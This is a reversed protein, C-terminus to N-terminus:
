ADHSGRVEAALIELARPQVWFRAPSVGVVEGDLAVPQPPTPAAQWREIKGYRVGSHNIHSGTYLRALLSLLRLRPQDRTLLFELTGDQPDATPALHMGGGVWPANLLMTDYLRASEEGDPGLPTPYPRARWWEALTAALYTLPGLRKWGTARQVIRASLGVGALLLFARQEPGAPGQYACWGVDLWRAPAQALGRAQAEIPRPLGLLRSLDRGTGTQILGLPPREAQRLLGNAVEHATGDGGVAVVLDARAPLAQAALAVAHGPARTLTFDPDLGAAHLAALIGPLLRETRGAGAAPNVICLARRM